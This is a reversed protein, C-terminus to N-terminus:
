RVAVAQLCLLLLTTLVMTLPSSKAAVAAVAQLGLPLLRPYTTTPM